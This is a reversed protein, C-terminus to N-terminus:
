VVEMSALITVPNQSEFDPTFADGTQGSRGLGLFQGLLQGTTQDYAVVEGLRAATMGSPLSFYTTLGTSTLTTGSAPTVSVNLWRRSGEQDWHGSVTPATGTSALSTFAPTWTGSATASAGIDAPTLTVNGGIPGVGNVSSVGGLNALAVAATTAGTGGSAIPVTGALSINPIAGGSSALPSSATVGIVGGDASISEPVWAGDQYVLIQGNSVGTPAPIAGVDSALLVVQGAKGNVMVVPGTQYPVLAPAAPVIGVPAGQVRVLGVSQITVYGRASVRVAIGAEQISVIESM